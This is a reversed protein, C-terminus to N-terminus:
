HLHQNALANNGSKSLCEDYNEVPVPVSVPLQKPVHYDARKTFPISRRIRGSIRTRGSNTAPQLFLEVRAFSSSLDDPAFELKKPAPPAPSELVSAPARLRDSPWPSRTKSDCTRLYDARSKPSREPPIERRLHFLQLIVTDRNNRHFIKQSPSASFFRNRWLAGHYRDVITIYGSKRNRPRDQLLESIRERHENVRIIHIDAAFRDSPRLEFLHTIGPHINLTVCHRM